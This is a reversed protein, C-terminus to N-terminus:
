RRSRKAKLYDRARQGAVGPAEKASRRLLPLARKVGSEAEQVLREVIPSFSAADDQSIAQNLEGELQDFPLANIRRVIKADEIVWGRMTKVRRKCDPCNRLHKQFQRKKEGVLVKTVYRLSDGLSQICRETEM